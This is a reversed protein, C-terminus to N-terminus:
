DRKGTPYYSSRPRPSASLSYCSATHERRWRGSSPDIAWAAGCARCPPSPPSAEVPTRGAVTDPIPPTDM